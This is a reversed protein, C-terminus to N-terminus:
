RKAENPQVDEADRFQRAFREIPGEDEAETRKIPWEYSTGISWVHGTRRDLKYMLTPHPSVLIFRTSEVYLAVSGLLAAGLLAACTVHKM